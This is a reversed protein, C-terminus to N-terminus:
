VCILIMIGLLLGLVVGLRWIFIFLDGFGLGVVVYSFELAALGEAVDFVLWFFVLEFAIASLRM